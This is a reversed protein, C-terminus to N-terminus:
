GGFLKKLPEARPGSKIGNSFVPQYLLNATLARGQETVPIKPDSAVFLFTAVDGLSIQKRQAATPGVVQRQFLAQCEAALNEGLRDPTTQSEELVQRQAQAMEVFLERAQADNGVLKSFRQWGPLDHGQKGEKDAIFADLRAKYDQELVLVLIRECRTRIEPDNTKLGDLLAQKAPRGMALLKKTAEEREEFKGAGLQRVLEVA